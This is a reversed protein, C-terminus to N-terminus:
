FLYAVALDYRNQVQEPGSVLRTRTQLGELGLLVNPGIRYMLNSAYALNRAIGGSPLDRGRDSELGSFLNWTLRSAIPMSIQAWGGSSHVARVKDDEVFTFGQDLAGLNSVNQGHFATGSIELKSWPVILWDLSAIHSAVSSGAVHSTSLHFSPAIEFRRVDDFKHWFALRGEVAPRVQELSDAYEKPTATYEEATQMVAAQATFGSSVGLNHREEYRAQPLWLWLNGAGALPPVGVEALSNPQRPAILPKDQGFSVSRNQWDFSVVGRRIRLWDSGLYSPGNFFDMSVFGHVQGDGPLHPGQFQFGLQTQRLSAGSNTSQYALGSAAAGIPVKSASFANFLLMGTLKLPLKQSAEVKTQAQEAIRQEDVAVREDLPPQSDADAQTGGPRTPAARASRLEERLSRVEVALERNQRELADLRDIVKQLMTTESSNAEQAHLPLVLLPIFLLIRARM